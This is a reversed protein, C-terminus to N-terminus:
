KVICYDIVYGKKNTKIYFKNYDFKILGLRKMTDLIKIFKEVKM